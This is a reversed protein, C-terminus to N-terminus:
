DLYKWKFGYATKRSGECVSRINRGANSKKGIAIAAQNASPFIAILNDQLDYQATKRGHTQQVKVPEPKNENIYRYIYGKHQPRKRQLVQGIAQYSTDNDKAAEIVSNYSKIFNGNLDYQNIPTKRKQRQKYDNLGGKEINYGYPTLTNYLKIYHEEYKDLETLLFEGLIEIKFNKFGYKEIAAYFASCNKYGQGTSTKAREKLSNSTQGIYSKGSLSTYKYIFGYGEKPKKEFSNM